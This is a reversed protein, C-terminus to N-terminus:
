RGLPLMTTSIPPPVVANSYDGQADHVRGYAIAAVCASSAMMIESRCYLETSPLSRNLRPSPERANREFGDARGHQRQPETIPLGSRYAAVMPQECTYKAPKPRSLRFGHRARKEVQTIESPVGIVIRPHVM